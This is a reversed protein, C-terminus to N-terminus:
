HSHEGPHGSHISDIIEIVSEILEDALREHHRDFPLIPQRVRPTDYIGQKYLLRKLFHISIDLHQTCFALVPLLRNFLVKASERDGSQYTRYITTYIEHMATPMLTHIGRDLAEIMQSVAWGGAVLLGASKALVESYKVGAPVVEIKISQFCAVERYLRDIIDVPVGYGNFDWDQIMLFAPKEAALLNVESEYQAENVFPLSVLVGDCGLDTLSRILSLRDQRNDASAGGIVPVRGNVQRVVTRVLSDREARTLKGVESAMAPVLFGAVGAAIAYAVNRELSLLDVQDSQTFPTNLVTIIGRLALHTKM